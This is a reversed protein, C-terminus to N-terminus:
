AVADALEKTVKFKVVTKAPVNIMAGTSPKRATRADRKAALLKGVSPLTVDDGAKLARRLVLAQAALFAEAESKKVGCEEAVATIFESKTM